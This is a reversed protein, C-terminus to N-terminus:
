HAFKRQNLVKKFVQCTSSFRLKTTKEAIAVHLNKIVTKWSAIKQDVISVYIFLYIFLYIKNLTSMTLVVYL